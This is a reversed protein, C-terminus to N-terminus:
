KGATSAAMKMEKQTRGETVRESKRAKWHSLKPKSSVDVPPSIVLLDYRLADSSTSHEVASCRGIMARATTKMNMQGTAM